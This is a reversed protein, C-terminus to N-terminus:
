DPNRTIQSIQALRDRDSDMRTFYVDEKNLSQIEGAMMISKLGLYENNDRNEMPSTVQPLVCCGDNELRIFGFSRLNEDYITGFMSFDIYISNNKLSAEFTRQLLSRILSKNGYLDIIRTIRYKLPELIEERFAIYALISGDKVFGFLTYKIFTNNLFRWWLFDRNRVSSVIGDFDEDLNIDYSYFNERTIEVVEKHESNFTPEAQFLNVGEQGIYNSVKMTRSFDLILVYRIFRELNFINYGHNQYFSATSKTFGIVGNIENSNIIFDIIRSNSGKGRFEPLTYASVGWIISYPNNIIKLQYDLGGYHSVIEGNPNLAIWNNSLSKNCRSCFYYLLFEKDQFITKGGYAKIFFKQLKELDDVNAKRIIIESSDIM